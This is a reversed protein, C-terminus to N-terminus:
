DARLRAARAHDHRLVREIEEEVSPRPLDPAARATPEGPPPPVAEPVVELEDVVVSM